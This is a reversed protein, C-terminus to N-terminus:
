ALYNKLAGQAFKNNEKMDLSLSITKQFYELVGKEGTVVGGGGGGGGGWVCM